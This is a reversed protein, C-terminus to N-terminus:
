TAFGNTAVLRCYYAKQPQLNPLQGSIPLFETKNPLTYIPTTLGFSPTLGYEFYYSTPLSNPNIEGYLTATTRTIDANKIIKILPILSLTTFESTYYTSGNENTAVLRVYYKTSSQLGTLVGEIKNTYQYTPSVDGYTPTTGYQFYYSVNKGRPLLDGKVKATTATIDYLDFHTIVPKDTVGVADWANAVQQYTNSNKGFLDTSALLSGIRSDLYDSFYGLYETLNRYAIKNAAEIGIADVTYNLQYDNVGTGGVCLLYYWFNQVGSNYHVGGNDGSDTYWLDGKWTDPQNKLNPNSMDRLGGNRFYKALQWTATDKFTDFEIAKGFIDSFSENLAGPENLYQLGAEYQTVGHTFEHGVVDLEVLPNNNSGDGFLLTNRSWFANDLNQDVHVLLRIASGINDYSNRSHNKFYYEFTKEAAWHVSVATQHRPDTYVHTSSYFNHLPVNAGFIWAWLSANAYDYTEIKGGNETEG